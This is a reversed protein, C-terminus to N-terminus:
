KPDEHRDDFVFGDEDLVALAIRAKPRIMALNRKRVVNNWPKLPDLVLPRVDLLEGIKDKNYNETWYICIEEHPLALVKLAEVFVKQASTTRTNQGSYICILELLFSSPRSGGKKIACVDRWSKLARIATLIHTPQERVFEVTAVSCTPGYFIWEERNEERFLDSVSTFKGGILVDVPPGIEPDLHMYRAEKKVLQRPEKVDTQEDSDVEDATKPCGNYSFSQVGPSPRTDRSPSSEPVQEDSLGVRIRFYFARQSITAQFAGDELAENVWELLDDHEAGQFNQFICVIDVDSSAPDVATGKAISGTWVIDDLRNSRSAAKILVRAVEIATLLYAWWKKEEGELELGEEPHADPHKMLIEIIKTWHKRLDFTPFKSGWNVQSLHRIHDQEKKKQKAFEAEKETYQKQCSRPNTETRRPFLQMLGALM